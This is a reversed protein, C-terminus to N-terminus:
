EEIIDVATGILKSGLKNYIGFYISDTRDEYINIVADCEPYTEKALALLDEYGKGGFSFVGLINHHTADMTVEGLIKYDKRELATTIGADGYPRTTSMCSSLLLVALLSFVIIKKMLM